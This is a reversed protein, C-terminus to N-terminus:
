FMIRQFKKLNLKNIFFEKKLEKYLFSGIYGEHGTILIKIM